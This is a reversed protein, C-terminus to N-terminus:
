RYAAMSSGPKSRKEMAKTVSKSIASEIDLRGDNSFCQPIYQIADLPLRRGQPMRVYGLVMGQAGLIKLKDKARNLFLIVENAGLSGVPVKFKKAVLALGDHGSGMNVNDIAAIITKM